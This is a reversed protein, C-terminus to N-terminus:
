FWKISGGAIYAFKWKEVDKSVSAKGQEWVTKKIIAM